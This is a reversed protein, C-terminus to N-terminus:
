IDLNGKMEWEERKTGVRNNRERSIQAEIIEIGKRIEAIVERMIRGKINDRKAHQAMWTYEKAM